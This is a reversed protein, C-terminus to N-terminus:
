DTSSGSMQKRPTRKALRLADVVGAAGQPLLPDRSNQRVLFFTMAPTGTLRIESIM